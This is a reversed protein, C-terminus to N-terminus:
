PFKARSKFDRYVDRYKQLAQEDRVWFEWLRSTAEVSTASWPVDEAFYRTYSHRPGAVTADEHFM